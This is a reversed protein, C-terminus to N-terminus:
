APKRNFLRTKPADTTVSIFNWVRQCAIASYDGFPSSRDSSQQQRFVELVILTMLTGYIGIEYMGSGIVLGIAATVWLGAATTLGRM